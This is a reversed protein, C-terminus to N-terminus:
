SLFLALWFALSGSAWLASPSSTLLVVQHLQWHRRQWRPKTIGQLFSTTLAFYEFTQELVNYVRRGELDVNSGQQYTSAIGGMDANAPPAANTFSNGPLTLGQPVSMERIGRFFLQNLVFALVCKQFVLPSVGPEVSHAGYSLATSRHQV